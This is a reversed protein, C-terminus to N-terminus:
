KWELLDPQALLGIQVSQSTLWTAHMGLNEAQPSECHLGFEALPEGHVSKKLAEDLFLTIRVDSLSASLSWFSVRPKGLM